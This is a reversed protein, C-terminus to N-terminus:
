KKLLEDIHDTLIVSRTQTMLAWVGIKAIYKTTEFRFGGKTQFRSPQVGLVESVHEPKLSDGRLYIAVYLSLDEANM